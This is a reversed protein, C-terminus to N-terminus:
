EAVRNPNGWAYGCATAKEPLRRTPRNSAPM